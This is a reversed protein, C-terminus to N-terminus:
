DPSPMQQACFQPTEPHELPRGEAAAQFDLLAMLRRMQSEDEPNFLRTIYESEKPCRGERCNDIGTSIEEKTIWYREQDLPLTEAILDSAIGLCLLAAILVGYKNLL